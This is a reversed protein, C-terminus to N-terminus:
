TISWCISRPKPRNPLSCRCSPALWQVLASCSRMNAPQFVGNNNKSLVTLSVLSQLRSNAFLRESRITYLAMLLSAKLLRKPPISLRGVASYMEGFVPSQQALAEAALQKIRRLPHDKAVRKEPGIVVLMARQKREEGRM